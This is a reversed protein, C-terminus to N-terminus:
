IQGERCLAIWPSPDFVNEKKLSKELLTAPLLWMVNDRLWCLVPNTLQGIKM